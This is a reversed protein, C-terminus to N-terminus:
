AAGRVDIKGTVADTILASRYERLTEIMKQSKAIVSDIQATRDDVERIVLTQVELPPVVIPAARVGAELHPHLAGTALSRLSHFGLHSSLFTGLYHGSLIEPKVRAIQLAHCSADGFDAPVVAVKGIDGTQVILVDGQRLHIRPRADHWEKRVYFPRRAFDIRGQKIHTSQIYPIGEDVLIDRTPGVFGNTLQRLVTGLRIIRWGIPLQWSQVDSLARPATFGHSDLVSDVIASREERLTAILQEQKGILADIKATERDLFDAIAQQETLSPLAVPLNEVQDANLNNQTNSRYLHPLYGRITKLNYFLFRDLCMENDVEFGLLAQNWVAPIRLISVEGVSAYMAFVITGSSGLQLGKSRRGLETLSKATNWVEDRSSMDGISVWPTAGEEESWYSSNDTDPTGGSITSALYKVRTASWGSPIEQLWEVGSDKYEPYAPFSM